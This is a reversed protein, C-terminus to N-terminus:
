ASGRRFWRSVSFARPQEWPQRGKDILRYESHFPHGGFWYEVNPYLDPLGTGHWGVLCSTNLLEISARGKRVEAERETYLVRRADIEAQWTALCRAEVASAHEARDWDTIKAPQATVISALTVTTEWESVPGTGWDDGSSHAARVVVIYDDHVESVWDYDIGRDSGVVTLRNGGRLSVGPRGAAPSGAAFLGLVDNM